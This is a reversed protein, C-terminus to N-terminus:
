EVWEKVYTIAVTCPKNAVVGGITGANMGCLYMKSLSGVLTYGDTKAFVSGVSFGEKEPIAITGDDASYLAVSECIAKENIMDRITPGMSAGLAGDDGYYGLHHVLKIEFLCMWYETDTEPDIGKSTKKCLWASGLRTVLDLPQYTQNKDYEGKPLILIKGVPTM